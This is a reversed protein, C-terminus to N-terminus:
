SHNKLPQGTRSGGRLGDSVIEGKISVQYILYALALIALLAFLITVGLLAYWTSSRFVRNLGLLNTYPSSRVKPNLTDSQDARTISESKLKAFTTKEDAIQTALQGLTDMLTTENSMITDSQTKLRLVSANWNRLIDVLRQQNTAALGSNGSKLANKWATMADDYQVNFTNAAAVADAHAQKTWPM